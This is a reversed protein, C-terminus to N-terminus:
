IVSVEEDSEELKRMALFSAIGVELMDLSPERATLRQLFLNPKVFFRVISSNIYKATFRIYEYSISALFPLLLVRVILRTLLDMPGLLTFILISFAVVTLLFATGCRPHEISYQAVNEPTLEAGDEFANITKHEAGHYAFVRRIDPIFGVIWIYTVLILLRVLGELVNSQWPNISLVDQLFHGIAAPTLSFLVIAFILSGILTIYLIPGELQEDEGTQLNASTTLARMGLVLADWLLVLGRLFPIKIIKSKYIGSLPETHLVINQDQDRMAIVVGKVGRMMVGEIVAQGGYTPLNKDAM